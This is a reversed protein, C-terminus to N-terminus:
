TWRVAWQHRQLRVAATATYIAVLVVRGGRRVWRIATEATKEGGAADIVVDPGVGGTEDLLADLADDSSPM